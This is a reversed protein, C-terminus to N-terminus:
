GTNKSNAGSSNVNNINSNIQQVYLNPEDQMIINIDERV